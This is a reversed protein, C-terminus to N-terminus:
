YIYFFKIFSFSIATRGIRSAEAPAVAALTRTHKQTISSTSNEEKPLAFFRFPCTDPVSYSCEFERKSGRGTNEIWDAPETSRKSITKALWRAASWSKMASLLPGARALMFDAARTGHTPRSRYDSRFSKKTASYRGCARAFM